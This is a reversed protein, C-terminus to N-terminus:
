PAPHDRLYDRYTTANVGFVRKFARGFTNMSLYGVEEAIERISKDTSKILKVANRMRLQELYSSFNENMHQKFFGSLYPESFHFREALSNLSLNPDSYNSDIYEIILQMQKPKQDAQACAAETCVRYYLETIQSLVSAENKDMIHAAENQIDQALTDDRLPVQAALRILVSYLNCMFVKIMDSSLNRKMINQQYLERLVGKLEELNGMSAAHYLKSQLTEPFYYLQKGIELDTYFVINSQCEFHSYNLSVMAESYSKEIKLISPCVSGVGIHIHEWFLNGTESIQSMLCQIQKKQDEVTEEHSPCLIVIKDKGEECFLFSDVLTHQIRIKQMSENEIFEENKETSFEVIQLIVIFYPKDISSVFKNRLLIPLDTSEDFENRLLKKFVHSVLLDQQLQVSDQLTKNYESIRHFAAKIYDFGNQKEDPLELACLQNSLDVIIKEIPKANRKAFYIATIVGVILLFLELALLIKKIYQIKSLVASSPQMAIFKLGSEPSTYSTILMDKETLFDKGANAIEQINEETLNSKEATECVIINGYTDIIASFGSEGIDLKKLLKSIEDTRILMVVYGGNIDTSDLPVTYFTMNYHSGRYEIEKASSYGMHSTLSDYLSMESEQEKKLIMSFFQDYTYLSDVGMVLKSKSFFLYYDEIFSNSASYRVLSDRTQVSLWLQNELPTSLNKFRQIKPNIIQQQAISQLEKTRLDLTDAAQRLISFNYNLTDQQFAHITPYYVMMVMVIPFILILLYSLLYKWWWKLQLRYKM